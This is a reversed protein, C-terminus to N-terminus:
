VFLLCHISPDIEPSGQQHYCEQEVGQHHQIDGNASEPIDPLHEPCKGAIPLVLWFPFPIVLSM